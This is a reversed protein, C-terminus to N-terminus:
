LVPADRVCRVALGETKDTAFRGIYSNEEPDELERDWADGEEEEKSAATATWYKAVVGQDVTDGGTTRYGTLTADYGSVAGMMLQPSVAQGRWGEKSTEDIRMGLAYELLQWEGDTPLHWGEPCLGQTDGRGKHDSPSYDMVEAWEYLAGYKACNEEKYGYCYKEPIKNDTMSSGSKKDLYVGYDLNEAMWCAGIGGGNAQLEAQAYLRNDRPDQMEGKCPPVVDTDSDSDTDSDTDADTDADSEGATDDDKGSCGLELALGLTFLTMPPTEAGLM